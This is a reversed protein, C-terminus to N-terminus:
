FFADMFIALIIIAKRRTCRFALGAQVLVDEGLSITEDKVISQGNSFSLETKKYVLNVPISKVKQGASTM